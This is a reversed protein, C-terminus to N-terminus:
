KKNKDDKHEFSKLDGALMSFSNNKVVTKSDNIKKKWNAHNPSIFYSEDDDVAGAGDSEEVSYEEVSKDNVINDSIDYDCVKM